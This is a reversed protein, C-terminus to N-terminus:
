GPNVLPVGADVPAPPQLVVLAVLLLASAVIVSFRVLKSKM